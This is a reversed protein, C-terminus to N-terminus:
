KIYDLYSQTLMDVDNDKAIWGLESTVKSTSLVMNKDAIKFQEIDMPCIKIFNLASLITQILLSPIPVLMSKSNIEKLFKKLLVLTELPNISGLNYIESPCNKLTALLSADACDNVSVLQFLNKGNGILPIPLNRQALWFLNKLIGLRGPGIILRPRFITCKINNKKIEKIIMTEASIKTNGYDGLPHPICNEKVPYNKQIGYVMDSSWFVLKITNKAKMHELINKTGTISTSAFFNYRNFRPKNPTILKSALHHVIDNKKLPITEVDRKNSIDCQLYNSKNFEKSNNKKIDVILYECNKLNKIKDVIAKGLFGNGGIIVHRQKEIVKLM